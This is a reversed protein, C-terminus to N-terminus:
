KYIEGQECKQLMMRGNAKKELEIDSNVKATPYFNFIYVKPAISGFGLQMENLRSLRCLVSKDFTEIALESVITQILLPESIQEFGSSNNIFPSLVVVVDSWM